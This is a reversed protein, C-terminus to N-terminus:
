LNHCKIYQQEPPFVIGINKQMDRGKRMIDGVLIRFLISYVEYRLNFLVITNVYLYLSSDICKLSQYAGILDKQLNMPKRIVLDSFVADNPIQVRSSTNGRCHPMAQLILALLSNTHSEYPRHSLVFQLTFSYSVVGLYGIAEQNYTHHVCLRYTLSQQVCIRLYAPVMFRARIGLKEHGLGLDQVPSADQVM